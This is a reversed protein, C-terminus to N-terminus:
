WTPYSLGRAKMPGSKWRWEFNKFGETYQGLMLQAMAEGVHADAYGQRLNYADQYAVIADAPRRLRMLANGRNNHIEPIKGNIMLAMKFDDLAKEFQELDMWAAGRNNYYEGANPNAQIARDYSLIADFPAGLGQLAAGRSNWAPHFSPNQILVVELLRMADGAHGALQLQSAQAFLDRFDTM